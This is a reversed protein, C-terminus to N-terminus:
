YAIAFLRHSLSEGVAENIYTWLGTADDRWQQLEIAALTANSGLNYWTDGDVAWVVSTAGLLVILVIFYM